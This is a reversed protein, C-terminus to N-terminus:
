VETDRGLEERPSIRGESEPMEMPEASEERNDEDMIEDDGDEVRLPEGINGLITDM